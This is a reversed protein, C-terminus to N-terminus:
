HFLEGEGRLSLILNGHHPITGRREPFASTLSNIASHEENCHPKLNRAYINEIEWVAESHSSYRCEYIVDQCAFIVHGSGPSTDGRGNQCSPM